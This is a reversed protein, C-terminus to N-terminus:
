RSKGYRPQNASRTKRLFVSFLVTVILLLNAAVVGHGTETAIACGGGGSEAVDNDLITITTRDREGASVGDPLTGFGLEVAEDDDDLDDDTATLTIDKSTEGSEFAVSTSQLSYDEAAATTAEDVTIPITVTREPDASLTIRVAATEGEVVSYASSAFEVSVDPDDNDLITITTRDREGASVGDPLTGFGLVVSEDDDDLDDDTATLTIDKSTEGSAFTVNTSQLSYDETAATTAEDVTTIPITVTREPDASLTVRVTATEGETVSYASSAFEASVDPDDNDLITITVRDREGASVGDPLTGFGLVVSEDDDDLDDDAVTLTIDKSTEGSEFTVNTSQLSYDETAATTAEDVTTIPITVIREPDASLTVRVAVTEGEAVSYASSAFQVSVDPDDNDKIIGTARDRNLVANQPNRLTVVLTEEEPENISDDISHVSITKQTEGPTFMLTGSSPSATYDSGEQATGDTIAYEVAVMQTNQPSLTVTFDLSNGEEAASDEISLRSFDNDDNRLFVTRTRPTFGDYFKDDSDTEGLIISYAQNGDQLDDDVGRVTVEQPTDWNRPTFRLEPPDPVGESADTSTLPVVVDESPESELEVEFKAEGGGETTVLGSTPGVTIGTPECGPPFGSASVSWGMDKLMGLALDMNSPFPYVAEMIDEANSHVHSVSGGRGYTSPAHLRPKGDNAKASSPKLEAIRRGYSCSNRGDDTGEWLLGTGSTIAAARQSNTLNRLLDGHAQSYMQEDYITRSIITAKRDVVVGNQTGTVDIMRLEFSGDRQVRAHFGLGHMAEHLSLRVFDVQNAPVSGTLGYYFRVCKSFIISIDAEQANFQRGLLAEGLAVPYATGLGPNTADGEDLRSGPYIHRRPWASAITVAGPLDRRCMTEDSPDQQDDYTVFQASIRITNTNTLTSELISTAHEFAKKRAEGLTTANNGSAALSNQEIQTLPTADKFGEGDNDDYIEEITVAVCPAAPALVALLLFLIGPLLKKAVSLSRM